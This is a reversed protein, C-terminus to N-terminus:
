KFQTKKAARFHKRFLRAYLCFGVAVGVAFLAVFGAGGIDVPPEHYYAGFFAGKNEAKIGEPQEQLNGKSEVTSTEKSENSSNTESEDRPTGNTEATSIEESENSLAARSMDPPTEGPENSLIGTSADSSTERLEDRFNGEPEEPPNGESFGPSQQKPEEPPRADSADPLPEEPTKPPNVISIGGGRNGGQDEVNELNDAAYRLVNSFYYAGDNDWRLRIYINPNMGTDWQEPMIGIFFSDAVDSVTMEEYESWNTGDFSYESSVTIPLKEEPKTYLGQFLYMRGNTAAKVETFTLPYDNYVVTCLAPEKSAAYSFSGQMSFRKREEQYTTTEELNWTVPIKDNHSVQGQYNITGTIEAPIVNDATQGREVIVCAPEHDYIFPTDAYHVDGSIRCNDVAMGAGEEQWLACQGGEVIVGNLSLKGGAAVRFVEQEGEQGLFVLHGDSWFESEGTVIISYGNMDVFVSPMDRGDPCFSCYGDLIVNGELKAMGGTNKHIEMWEMLEAGTSVSKPETRASASELEAVAQADPKDAQTNDAMAVASHFWSFSFMIIYAAIMFKIKHNRM